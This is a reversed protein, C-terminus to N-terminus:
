TGSKGELYELTFRGGIENVRKRDVPPAPEGGIEAALVSHQDPGALAHAHRDPERHRKGARLRVNEMAVVELMLVTAHHKAHFNRSKRRWSCLRRDRGRRRRGRRADRM